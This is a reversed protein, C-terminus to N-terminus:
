GKKINMKIEKQNFFEKFVTKPSKDVAYLLSTTHKPIILYHIKLENLM